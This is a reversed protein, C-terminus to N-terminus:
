KKQFQVEGENEHDSIEALVSGAKEYLRAV